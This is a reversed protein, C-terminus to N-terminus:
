FVKCKDIAFDLKSNTGFELCKQELFELGM